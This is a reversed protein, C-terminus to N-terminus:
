KITELSATYEKLLGMIHETNFSAINANFNVNRNNPLRFISLGFYTFQKMNHLQIYLSKIRLGGSKFDSYDASSSSKPIIYLVWHHFSLKGSVTCWNHNEINWNVWSKNTALKIPNQNAEWLNIRLHEISLHSSDFIETYHLM